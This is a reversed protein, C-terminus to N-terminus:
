AMLFVVLPLPAVALLVTPVFAWAPYLRSMGALMALGGGGGVLASGPFNLALVLALYRHRLLVPVWRGPANEVFLELRSESDLEAGQSVLGAARRLGLALFIRALVPAPVLRGAAYALCLAGVMGLYVLPAAQAGFALMLGMGIEAGPVFPVASVMVYVVAATVLMAGGMAYEAALWGPLTRALWLGAGLAAAYLPVLIWLRRRGTPTMAVEERERM